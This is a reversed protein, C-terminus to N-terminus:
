GSTVGVVLAETCSLILSEEGVLRLANKPGFSYLDSISKKYVM